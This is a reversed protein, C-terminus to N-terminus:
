IYIKDLKYLSFLLTSNMSHISRIMKTHSVNNYVSMQSILM